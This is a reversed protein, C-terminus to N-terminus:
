YLSGGYVANPYVERMSEWQVIFLDAYKYVLAGTKTRDYIRSFTEIYIIKKCTLKALLVFPLFIITGTSVIIDPKEKFWIKCAKLFNYAMKFLVLKDKSGTQIMYYDAKNNIKTKETIIVSNYKDMLPKLM